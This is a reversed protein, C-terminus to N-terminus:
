VEWYELSSGAKATATGGSEAAFRVILTLTTNAEVRGWMKCINDFTTASSSTASGDNSGTHNQTTVTTTTIPWQASMGFQSYDGADVAWHTGTSTNNVHFVIQAEFMRSEGAPVEFSLGTVNALSTTSNVVDSGITVLTRHGSGGGGGGGGAELEDIVTGLVDALEDITTSNADYTKDTTVNSVTYGSLAAGGGIGGAGIEQLAAEVDTGTYYTGVDAISIASADHADTTDGTHATLDSANAKETALEDIAAEVQTASMGTGGAYSIASADHADTTDDIHATLDSANAKETALEDIAAEANTASMGTGGAYTVDAAAVSGAAVSGPIWESNTDDWILAQGASPPATSTDVDTLDDIAGVAGGAALEALAAEVDTATFNAGTDLISIASADHADAIDALHDALAAPTGTVVIDIWATNAANRVKLENTSPKLWGRYAGLTTTPDSESPYFFPHVANLGTTLRHSLDVM